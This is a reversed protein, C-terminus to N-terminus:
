RLTASKLHRLRQHSKVAPFVHVLQHRVQLLGYDHFQEQHGLQELSEVEQALALFTNGISNVELFIGRFVFGQAPVSM